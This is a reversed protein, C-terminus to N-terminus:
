RGDELYEKLYKGTYSKENNIIDKVTGFGVIEGGKDGGEPGLDIIWDSHKIIDLNHEIVLVSNGKEVLKKLLLLLKDVDHFHLGTTPEDLVYMTHGRTAKSLEKALKIRQSEGGSLTTAPQGLQIYGLGVENLIDLKRKIPTFNEFFISADAVTMALVDAISQGKYDIQLAEKNYRKGLCSECTVYMDPLFQMEIKIQGDGKCTECRGGKVNFSFRSATYGRARSEQTQTYLERIHNFIGTYTATNSRPTRGIPSQDIEIVKNIYDLGDVSKYTGETPANMGVHKLLIPVLTDNILSSKGSGSAGTVTVFKGLPVTINVDKLNHTTVGELTLKNPLIPPQAGVKLDQGVKLSKNIYKATLTKAQRIQKLTGEAVILGGNNGAEPGVDIIWDAKSITDYDHEVVVVSNGLDRLKELSKILKDVDKSHLGISPEDLVYLVGTLGTGIQSALRIRQSEGGSLTNAKRSLTLYNLGVDNLFTLRTVIEKIIPRAIEAKNGTLKLRDFFSILESIQLATLQNIGKKNITVALAYAQLRQGKCESCEKEIMYKDIEERIYESDTELYRRELQTIVGEYKSDYVRKYGNRNIYALTYVPKADKGYFILNFIEDSYEGIPTTLKVGHEIAVAELVKLTWSDTTTMNSWPFIGGEKISLRPNYIKSIDIEKLTGLGSCKLCAGHPSNFSFTAPKIAPFSIKCRRCTNNESFVHQTDNLIVKIEGESMNSGLEVADTLRRQYDSDDQSKVSLRDIILDISHKKNKDIKLNEIEDLNYNKGDIIVRLYGKSLLGNLIEKFTGKQSQVIPSLIQLKDEVKSLKNISDVIEQITQAEIIDGCNPCHSIGVHGFLLRMYDYIETVTGVTSRPNNGSTKQDISIAPSLGTISEVDPKEMLGLFQRAYSSLSEVYRRQGEAYLTDFALSSKGSGSVGTIVVLKNKPIKVTVNKLNHVKANKIEIYEQM